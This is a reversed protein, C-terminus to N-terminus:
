NKKANFERVTVTYAGAGRQQFSTAVIRYPGDVPATFVIRSNQNTESIDDNEALVKGKADELRLYTDFEASAMDIVYTKRAAMKIPHPQEPQKATLEGKHETEIYAARVQTHLKEVQSWLQEWAAREDDPLKEIKRPERVGALDPDSQWHSLKMATRMVDGPKGGELLKGHLDLDANLWGRAQKRFAHKQEVNLKGADSGQGDGALAAACAANYRHARTLDTALASEAQFGKGFLEAATAHQNKYQTCMQGMALLDAPSAEAKGQMVMQVRKDLALLQECQKLQSQVMNRLPHWAPLLSLAKQTSQRAESFSGTHLLARGMAGHSQPYTPELDIAKQYAAIAEPLKNQEFLVNGLNLHSRGNRPDLEIAKQCAALAESLKKQETLAAGLNNHAVAYKPDLDIAKQYAAIAEHLKKQHHLNTGLNYYTRAATPDLEIAKQYAEVAKSRENQDSFAKGLNNYAKASKPDLDIAKQFAAIAEPLKKQHVLAIGINYYSDADKPDLDIARQYAAIAEPLKKQHVLAIGLNYYARACKPDLDIAKQYAAIAEPLKKQDHLANGLNNYASAFKPDLDIAKQHAAIAEPLKKQDSLVVGLNSYAASSAPRVAIAAWYYGAAEAGNSEKRAAALEYIMWFDRPYTAHAKRLWSEHIVTGPELLKSVLLLMQPSLGVAPEAKVLDNLGQRNRWVDIRRLRDGWQPDPAAQRAVALVQEPVRKTGLRAEVFAWDDLAAVLVEKIPSGAIRAAVDAVNEGAIALGAGAFAKPYEEAARGFDFKGNVITAKDMRIKELRVALLRDRDDQALLTQLKEATMGLEPDVSEEASAFLAKARDMAAQAIKLQAEWNDPHNLLEFVGGPKKLTKYLANRAEQSQDLAHRFNQEAQAKKRAADAEALAKKRAEDADRLAQATTQRNQVDQYWVAGVGAGIMAVLLAAAAGSVLPKHKRTWRGAKVPWPEGYAGVPEDALWHEIEDALARPSTYRDAPKQAMANLCIAELAPAVAPKLQRPRRFDGQQVKRLVVDPDRDEVPAKGSLLAYLTAGLSYVDSAPGLLDLRGAAQEPSMFAPTGIATGAITEANSSAHAPHLTPEDAGTALAGPESLKGAAKALGWDVVLTEGYKGLMINGPKLDRHLVGRDHAYQMAQCVDIFRGLLKRFELTREGTASAGPEAKHFREIAEKLSDGRIFRMAYFPRGDAYQGLGYVPVIGPHELGGTIEAELLFRSRSEPNDAHRDQIEKLAVERHLEEDHAVFVEGLGGKAHARLIRFRLGASTTTGAAATAYPDDDKARAASVHVMSAQLDADAIKELDKKVSGVSSVAALSQQPDNQHQKLHEQVLAQLLAHLEAGLVKQEVLIAGLAKSKDLVWAHMGAVLQDRSVFDMQVALIGFLLNLDAGPTTQAM